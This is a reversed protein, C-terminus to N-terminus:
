VTTVAVCLHQLLSTTTCAKRMCTFNRGRPACREMSVWTTYRYVLSNLPLAETHEILVAVSTTRHLYHSDTESVDRRKAEILGKEEVLAIVRQLPDHCLTAILQIKNLVGECCVKAACRKCM